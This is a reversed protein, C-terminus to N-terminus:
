RNRLHTRGRRDQRPRITAGGMTRLRKRYGSGHVGDRDRVLYRPADEWPFAEVVQQAIWERDPNPAVNIWVLRRRALGVIILGYLLSFGITPVVFLDIAANEAELSM